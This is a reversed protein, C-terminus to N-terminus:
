ETNKESMGIYLIESYKSLLLVSDAHSTWAHVSYIIHHVSVFIKEIRKYVERISNIDYSIDSHQM